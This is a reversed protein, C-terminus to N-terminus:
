DGYPALTLGVQNLAGITPTCEPPINDPGFKGAPNAAAVLCWEPIVIGKPGSITIVPSESRGFDALSMMAVGFGGGSGVGGSAQWGVVAADDLWDYDIYDIPICRRPNDPNKKLCEILANDLQLVVGVDVIPKCPGPSLDACITPIEVPTTDQAQLPSIFLTGAVVLIVSTISRM